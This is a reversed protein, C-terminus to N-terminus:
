PVLFWQLGPTPPPLHYLNQFTQVLLLKFRWIEEGFWGWSPSQNDGEGGLFYTLWPYFSISLGRFLCCFYCLILSLCPVNSSETLYQFTISIEGMKGGATGHISAILSLGKPLLQLPTKSAPVHGVSADPLRTFGVSGNDSHHKQIYLIFSTLNSLFRIVNFIYNGFLLFNHYYNVRKKIAM